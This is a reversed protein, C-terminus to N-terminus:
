TVIDIATWTGDAAAAYLNGGGQLTSNKTIPQAATTFGIFKNDVLSNMLVAHDVNTLKIGMTTAGAAGVFLNGKILGGGRGDTTKNLLIGNSTAPVKFFNDVYSDRTGNAILGATVFGDFECKEVVLNVPDPQDSTGGAPLGPTIGYTAVGGYDTFNCDHIYTQYYSQGATDGILICSGAQRNQFCLGAIEVKDAKITFMNVTAGTTPNKITTRQNLYSNGAGFVRLGFQTITIMTTLDHAGSDPAMFIITDNRGARAFAIDATTCVSHYGADNVYDYRLCFTAYDTDTTKKVYYTNGESNGGIIPDTIVESPLIKAGYKLAPLFEHLYM